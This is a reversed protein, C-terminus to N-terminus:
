LKSKKREFAREIIFLQILLQCLFPELNPIIMPRLNKVKGLLFALSMEFQLLLYIRSM